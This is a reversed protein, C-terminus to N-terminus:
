KVRDTVKKTVFWAGTISLTEWSKNEFRQDLRIAGKELLELVSGDTRVEEAVIEHGVSKLLAVFDDHRLRNMYMYRNGAYLKWKIESFQLFNIPSIRGDSYSFHDTYDIKHIFLGENNVIRNGEELIARLVTPHIHEFVLNSVHYDVSKSPISTKSADAPALYEIQCLDFLKAPSRDDQSAFERLLHLRDARILPGFLESIRADMNLIYSLTEGVLESRVYPNIDVTITKRAGMLWFSLPVLPVRGTGVEFFVKDTPDQGCNVIKKWIEIGAVLGAEPNYGHLGGFHRQIWYYAPYSVRRPLLAV